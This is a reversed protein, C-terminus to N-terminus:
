AQMIGRKWATLIGLIVMKTLWLVVSYVILTIMTTIMTAKISDMIVFQKEGFDFDDGCNQSEPSTAM